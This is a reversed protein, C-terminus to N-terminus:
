KSVIYNYCHRIPILCEYVSKSSFISNGAIYSETISEELVTFWLGTKTFHRWPNLIVSTDNKHYLKSIKRKRLIQLADFTASITLNTKM